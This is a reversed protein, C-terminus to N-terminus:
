ISHRVLEIANENMATKPTGSRPEVRLDKIASQFRRIWRCVTDYSCSSTGSVSELEQHIKMPSDGLKLRKFIYFRLNEKEPEKIETVRKTFDDYFSLAFEDSTISNIKFYLPDDKFQYMIQRNFYEYFPLYKDVQLVEPSSWTYRDTRRRM